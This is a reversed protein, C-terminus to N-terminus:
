EETDLVLSGESMVATMWIEECQGGLPMIQVKLKEDKGQLKTVVGQKVEGSETCFRVKDGESILVEEGDKDLIIVSKYPNVEVQIM